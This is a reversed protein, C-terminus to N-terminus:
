ETKLYNRFKERTVIMIRLSSHWRSYTLTLKRNGIKLYNLLNRYILLNLM